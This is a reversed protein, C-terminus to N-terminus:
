RSIVKRTECCLLRKVTHKGNLPVVVICGSVSEAARDMVILDGNHIGSGSMSEGEVRM